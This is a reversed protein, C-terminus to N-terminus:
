EFTRGVKEALKVIVSMMDEEVQEAFWGQGSVLGRNLGRTEYGGERVIQKTPLYGYYEHCYSSIWLKQHGIAKQTALVYGSVVEGSIGILTLDQGFQWASVPADFHTPLTGGSKLVRLMERASGKLWNDGNEAIRQLEAPDKAPQLTLHARDLATKLPGSVPALNSELLRCVETAVENGHDIANQMTGRPYPNANGACGNMFMATSGPYEKEVSLQAFGAFDGSVIYNDNVLTTNHCAVQFIVTLLEDDLTTVKLCPLSRDVHGSPNVGLRVGRPTRERRNMVFSAFGSGWSLEVPQLTQTADVVVQVLQKQLAASYEISNMVDSKRIGEVPIDSLTLEPGSHTHSWTLLVDARQIGTRAEIGAYIEETLESSIGVLDTTILAVRKGTKDELILVKAWLDHKVSVFPTIRSDYGSMILPKEPTIKVRAVGAMWEAANVTTFLLFYLSAITTARLLTKMIVIPNTDRKCLNTSPHSHSHAPFIQFPKLLPIISISDCTSRSIRKAQQKM